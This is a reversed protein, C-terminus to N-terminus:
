YDLKNRRPVSKRPYKPERQLGLMKPWRFTPSMCIKKQHSHVGRLVAKKAKLAKAKSEAKPLAPAEKVKLAM